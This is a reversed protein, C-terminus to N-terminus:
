PTPVTVERGALTVRGRWPILMPVQRQYARYADGFEAALDREELVAGVCIWITWVVSLLLRDATVDPNTWFLVLICSYLPHRVWLYPGRVVFDGPRYAEGRLHSRIPALGLPDFSRRLTVASFVFTSAALISLTQAILRPVGELAVLRIQSPQWLIVVLALAIGSAISYAAGQYRSPILSALRARVPRRVMGSHQVFFALSLLADWPLLFSDPWAMRVVTISPLAVFMAISGGGLVISLSLMSYDALRTSGKMAADGPEALVIPPPPM